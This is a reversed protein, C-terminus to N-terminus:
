ETLENPMKEYAKIAGDREAAIIALQDGLVEREVTTRDREAIAEDRQYLGNGTVIPGIDPREEILRKTVSTM